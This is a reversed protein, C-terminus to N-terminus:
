PEAWRGARLRRVSGAREAVRREHTVVILTCGTEAHVRELLDLVQVTTEEDLNGTPEDALLLRPGNALARAIAVRQREGGSLETPRHGVRHSLGVGDLLREARARRDAPSMRSLALSLEVNERATLVEVLGYHQFVFGVTRRRYEALADGSLTSLDHGGVSISGRQLPELGGVLSLLTSKGAGSPGTLAVFDGGWLDLDLDHLVPVAGRGYAYSVGRMSVEAGTAAAAPSSPGTVTSPGRIPTSRIAM